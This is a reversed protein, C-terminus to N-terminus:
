ASAELSRGWVQELRSLARHAEELLRSSKERFSLAKKVAEDLNHVAKKTELIEDKLFRLQDRPAAPSPHYLIAPSWDPTHQFHSPLAQLLFTQDPNVAPNGPVRTNRVFRCEPGRAYPGSCEHWCWTAATTGHSVAAGKVRLTCAVEVFGVRLGEGAHAPRRGAAEGPGQRCAPGLLMCAAGRESESGARGKGGRKLQECKGEDVDGVRDAHLRASLSHSHPQVAHVAIGPM